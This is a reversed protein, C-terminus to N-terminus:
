STYGIRKGIDTAKLAAIAFTMDDQRGRTEEALSQAVELIISACNLLAEPRLALPVNRLNGPGSTTLYDVVNGSFQYVAAVDSVGLSPMERRNRSGIDTRDNM